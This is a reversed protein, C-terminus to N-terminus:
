DRLVVEILIQKPYKTVTEYTQLSHKNVCLYGKTIRREGETPNEFVLIDETVDDLNLEKIEFGAKPLYALCGVSLKFLALGINANIGYPNRDKGHSLKKYGCEFAYRNIVYETYLSPSAQITNQTWSRPYIRYAVSLVHTRKSFITAGIPVGAEKLILAYYTYTTEKGITSAYLDHIKPNSKQGIQETYLPTFWALIEQTLPEVSYTISTEHIKLLSSRLRAQNNKGLGSAPDKLIPEIWNHESPYLIHMRVM